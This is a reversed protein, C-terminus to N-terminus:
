KKILNKIFNRQILKQNFKGANRQVWTGKFFPFKTFQAQPSNISTLEGTWVTPSSNSVRRTHQQHTYFFPKNKQKELPPQHKRPKEKRGLHLDGELSGKTRLPTEGKGTKPTLTGESHSSPSTFRWNRKNSYLFVVINKNYYLQFLLM